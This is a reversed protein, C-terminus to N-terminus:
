GRGIVLGRFDGKNDEEHPGADLSTNVDKTFRIKRMSAEKVDCLGYEYGDVLVTNKPDHKRLLEILGAVTM